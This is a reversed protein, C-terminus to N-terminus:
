IVSLLKILNCRLKDKISRGEVLGKVYHFWLEGDLFILPFKKLNEKPVVVEEVKRSFLVKYNPHWCGFKEGM